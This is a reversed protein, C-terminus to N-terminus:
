SSAPTSVRIEREGIEVHLGFGVQLLRAFAEANEVEFVGGIQIRAAAADAIVLRRPGYRNFEAAADALSTQDFVLKGKLWSLRAGTKAATQRSILIDDDRVLATEDRALVTSSGGAAEVQVRGEEVTVSVKENAADGAPGVRRVAFRTGLVTIRQRGAHVVFPHRADKAVEFFAEGKDLWVERTGTGIATRLSSDTNLTLTSGDKLSMSQRQGLATAYRQVPATDRWHLAAPVALLVTMLAAAGAARRTVTPRAWRPAERPAPAASRLVQLRDARRWASELRLFAVRHATSQNLWVALAAQREAPWADEARDREALWAAAQEDILSSPHESNM